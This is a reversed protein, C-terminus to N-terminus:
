GTTDEPTRGWDGTRPAPRALRRRSAHGKNGRLLQDAIAGTGLQLEDDPRAFGNRESGRHEPGMRRMNRCSARQGCAHPGQRTAGRPSPQQVVGRFTCLAVSRWISARRRRTGTRACGFRLCRGQPDPHKRRSGVIEGGSQRPAGWRFRVFRPGRWAQRPSGRVRDWDRRSRGYDIGSGFVCPWPVGDSPNAFPSAWRAPAARDFRTLRRGRSRTILTPTRGLSSRSISPVHEGEEHEVFSLGSSLLVAPRARRARRHRAARARM